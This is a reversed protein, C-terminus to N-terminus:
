FCGYWRIPWHRFFCGSIAWFAPVIPRKLIGCFCEGHWNAPSQVIGSSQASRKVFRMLVTTHRSSANPSFPKPFRLNQRHIQEERYARARQDKEDFESQHARYYAEVLAIEDVNLTPLWRMIEEYSSGQQFYPVLDLVTIRSTSLQLGRGRDVLTITETM